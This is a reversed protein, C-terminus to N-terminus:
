EHALARAADFVLDINTAPLAKNAHCAAAEDVVRLFGAYAGDKHLNLSMERRSKTTDCRPTATMRAQKVAALMADGEDETLFRHHLHSQLRSSGPTAACTQWTLLRGEFTYTIFDSGPACTSGVPVEGGGQDTLNVDFADESWVSKGNEAVPASAFFNTPVNTMAMSGVALVGELGSVNPGAAGPRLECAYTDEYFTPLSTRYLLVKLDPKPTSACSTSSSLTVGKATNIVADFVADDIPVAYWDTHTASSSARYAKQVRLAFTGDATQECTTRSITDAYVNLSEYGPVCDSGPPMFGSGQRTVTFGKETGDFVSAATLDESAISADDNDTACASLGFAVFFSLLFSPAHLPKM